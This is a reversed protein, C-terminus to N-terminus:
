SGTFNFSSIKVTPVNQLSQDWMRLLRTEQGVAEVENWAKLYSQTFRLDKVPRVIEGHEILFTGNRTMGTATLRIPDIPRTYHLQTVYLGRGTSQIMEEVTASGPRLFTHRPLPGSTNPPPLAHGTSRRGKELGAYYSDYAVGSAVGNSILDLRRKPVGECDFPEVIGNGDFGDDHITINPGMIRKGINGCVFSTKERFSRAGLGVTTTVFVLDQTAYPALIVAYEAPEIPQPNQGRSCRETAEHGIAEFDLRRVDMAMNAAYGASSDGIVTVKIESLTGLHFCSHGLSNGVALERTATTLAGYAHFGAERALQCIAGVSEARQGPTCDATAPFYGVVEPVLQPEPLSLFGPNPPTRRANSLAHDLARQLAAAELSNTIAIGIQNAIVVRVRLTVNSSFVNQHITSNAFRTLANDTAVVSVETQDASSRALVWQITSSIREPGIM